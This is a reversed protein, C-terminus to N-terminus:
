NVFVGQDEYISLKKDHTIFVMEADKAQCILLRDFPDKHSNNQDNSFIEEYLEIASLKLPLFRYGASECISIFDHADLDISDPKLTHKLAIEWASIDSVYVDNRTNLITRIVEDSLRSDGCLLWIMLHTDVLIRM